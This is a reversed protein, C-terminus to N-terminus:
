YQNRKPYTSLVIDDPILIDTVTKYIKKPIITRGYKVYHALMYIGTILMIIGFISMIILGLILQRSIILSFGVVFCIFSVVQIVHAALLLWFMKPIKTTVLAPYKYIQKSLLSSQKVHKSVRSLSHITALNSYDYIQSIVEEPLLDFDTKM